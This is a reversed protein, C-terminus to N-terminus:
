FNVCSCNCFFYRGPEFLRFLEVPCGGLRRFRGVFVQFGAVVQDPVLEGRRIQPFGPVDEQSGQVPFFGLDPLGRFRQQLPQLCPFGEGPEGPFETFVFTGRGGAPFEAPYAGGAGLFGQTQRQCVNRVVPRYKEFAPPPPVKHFCGRNFFSFRWGIFFRKRSQPICGPAESFSLGHSQVHVAKKFFGMESVANFVLLAASAGIGAFPGECFDSVDPGGAKVDSCERLGEPKWVPANRRERLLRANGSIAM